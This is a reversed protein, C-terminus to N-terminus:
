LASPDGEPPPTGGRDDNTDSSLSEAVVTVTSSVTNVFTNRTTQTRNHINSHTLHYNKTCFSPEMLPWVGGHRLARAGGKSVHICLPCGSRHMFGVCVKSDVPRHCYPNTQQAKCCTTCSGSSNVIGEPAIYNSGPHCCLGSNWCDTCKIRPQGHACIRLAECKWCEGAVMNHECPADPNCETCKSKQRQHECLDSGGCDKCESRQRQHECLCRLPKSASSPHAM